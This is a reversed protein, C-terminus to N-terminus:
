DVTESIRATRILSESVVLREGAGARWPLLLREYRSRRKLGSAQHVVAEVLELRPREERNVSVYGPAVAHGYATDPQDTIERGLLIVAECPKYAKIYRPWTEIIPRDHHPLRAIFAEASYPNSVASSFEALSMQGRSRKWKTYLRWLQKRKPHRLRDLGLPEIFFPPRQAEGPNRGRLDDLRALADNVNGAIEIPEEAPRAHEIVIREPEYEILLETLQRFCALSLMERRVVVRARGRNLQFTAFGLDKTAYASSEGNNSPRGVHHVFDRSGPLWLKGDPGVLLHM